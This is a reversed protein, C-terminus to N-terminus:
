SESYVSEEYDWWQDGTQADYFGISVQILRNEPWDFNCRAWSGKGHKNRCIYHDGTGSGSLITLQMLTSAGDACMDRVYMYDGDHKIVGRGGWGTDYLCDTDRGNRGWVPGWTGSPIGSVEVGVLWYTAANAPAAVFIPFLTSLILLLSIRSRRWRRM